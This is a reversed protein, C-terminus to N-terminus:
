PDVGEQKVQKSGGYYKENDPILETETEPKNTETGELLRTLRSSPGRESPRGKRKYADGGTLGAM